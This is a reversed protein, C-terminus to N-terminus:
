QWRLRWNGMGMQGGAEAAGAEEQLHTAKGGDGVDQPWQQKPSKTIPMM